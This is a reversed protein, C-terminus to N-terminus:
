YFMIFIGVLSLLICILKQIIIELNLDEFIFTPFFITGIIGVFFVFVGQFSSLTNAIAIPIFLNAFNVMLNAIFNLLENFLNLNIFKKGKEKLIYSFSNKYSKINILIIGILLFFLQHWFSCLEFTSNRMSIEFTFYYLAEFMSSFIMYILAITKTKNNCNNFDYSIIMASLIIIIAGILEKITLIEKFFIRSLIYSFIPVLQFMSVVISTENKELAKFYFFISLLYCISSIFIIILINLDIIINLKLKILWIPSFIIGVILTSFILMTKLSSNFNDIKCLAYKDIHSTISWIFSAVLTLIIPLSM